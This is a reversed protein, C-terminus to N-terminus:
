DVNYLEEQSKKQAETPTIKLRGENSADILERIVDTYNRNLNKCNRKFDRLAKKGVRVALYEDLTAKPM